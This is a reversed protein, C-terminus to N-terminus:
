EKIPIIIPTTEEKVEEALAKQKAKYEPVWEFFLDIVSVQDQKFNTETVAMCCFGSDEGTIMAIVIPLMRVAWQFITLLSFDLIVNIAIVSGFLVIVARSIIQKRKDSRERDRGSQGALKERNKEGNVNLILSPYLEIPKAHNCKLLTRKITASTKLRKIAKDSMPLYKEKYEEYSIEVDALLNARYERLERVKYEKCFEPVIGALAKDYISKVKCKYTTLAEIYEADRMGRQKGRTYRNRYVLTTVVYLLVTLATFSQISGFTLKFDTFSVVAAILVLLALMFDNVQVKDPTNDLMSKEIDKRIDGRIEARSKEEHVNPAIRNM